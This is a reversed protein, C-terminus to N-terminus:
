RDMAATAPSSSARDLAVNVAQNDAATVRFVGHGAGANLFDAVVSDFPSPSGLPVGLSRLDRSVSDEVPNLYRNSTELRAAEVGPIRVAVIRTVGIETNPHHFVKGSMVGVLASAPPSPVLLALLVRSDARRDVLDLCLTRESFSVAGTHVLPTGDLLTECYVAEM